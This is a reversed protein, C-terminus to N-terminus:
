KMAFTHQALQSKCIKGWFVDTRRNLLFSTNKAAGTLCFIYFEHISNNTAANMIRQNCKKETTTIRKDERIIPINRVTLCEVRRFSEFSIEHAIM